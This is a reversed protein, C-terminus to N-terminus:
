VHVATSLKFFNARKLLVIESRHKIRWWPNSGYTLSMCLIFTLALKIKFNICVWDISLVVIASAKVSKGM